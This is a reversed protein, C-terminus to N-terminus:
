CYSKEKDNRKTNKNTKIETLLINDKKEIVLEVKKEKDKNKKNNDESIKILCFRENECIIINREQYSKIKNKDENKTIKEIMFQENIVRNIKEKNLGEKEKEKENGIEKSIDISIVNDVSILKQEFKNQKKIQIININNIHKNIICDKFIKVKPHELGKIELKLNIQKESILENKKRAKNKDKEKESNNLITIESNDGKNISIIDFLKPKIKNNILSFPENHCVENLPAKAAKEKSNSIM